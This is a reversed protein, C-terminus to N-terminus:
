AVLVAKSDTEDTNEKEAVEEDAKFIDKVFEPMDAVSTEKCMFDIFADIQDDTLNDAASPGVQYAMQDIYAKQRQIRCFQNPQQDNEYSLIGNVRGKINIWKQGTPRKVKEVVMTQCGEPPAVVEGYLIRGRFTCATVGSESTETPLYDDSLPETTQDM